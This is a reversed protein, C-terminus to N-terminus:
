VLAAAVLFLAGVATTARARLSGSVKNENLDPQPAACSSAAAESNQGEPCDFCSGPDQERDDYQAEQYKGAACADCSSSGADAQHRGVPCTACRPYM